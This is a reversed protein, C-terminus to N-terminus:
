CLSICKSNRDLKCLKTLKNIKMKVIHEFSYFKFEENITFNNKYKGFIYFFFFFLCISALGAFASTFILQPHNVILYQAIHVGWNNMLRRNLKLSAYTLISLEKLM